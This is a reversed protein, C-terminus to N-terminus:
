LSRLLRELEDRSIGLTRLCGTLTGPALDRNVPFVVPRYLGPRTMVLHSGTQRADRCGLLLCVKRFDRWDVPM